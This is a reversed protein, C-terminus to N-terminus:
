ISKQAHCIRFVLSKILSESCMRKYEAWSQETECQTDDPAFPLSRSDRCSLEYFNQQCDNDPDHCGRHNLRGKLRLSRQVDCSNKTRTRYVSSHVDVCMYPCMHACVHESLCAICKSWLISISSHKSLSFDSATGRVTVRRETNTM